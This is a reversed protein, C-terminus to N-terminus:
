QAAEENEWEGVVGWRFLTELQPGNIGSPGYFGFAGHCIPGWMSYDVARSEKQYRFGSFLGREKSENVHLGRERGVVDERGRGQSAM